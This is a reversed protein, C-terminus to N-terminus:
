RRSAQLTNVCIGLGSPVIALKGHFNVEPIAEPRTNYWREGQIDDRRTELAKSFLWERNIDEIGLVLNCLNTRNAGSALSERRDM